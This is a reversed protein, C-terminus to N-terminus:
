GSNVRTFKHIHFIYNVSVVSKGANPINPIWKEWLGKVLLPHKGTMQSSRRNYEANQATSLGKKSCSERGNGGPLRESQNSPRTTAPDNNGLLAQQQTLLLQCLQFHCAAPSPKWMMWIVLVTHMCFSYMCISKRERADKSPTVLSFDAVTRLECSCWVCKVRETRVCM